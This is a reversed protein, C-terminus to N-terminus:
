SQKVFIEREAHNNMSIQFWRVNQNSRIIQKEGKGKEENNKSLAEVKKMEEIQLTFIASRPSEWGSGRVVNTGQPGPPVGAYMAGSIIADFYAVSLASTQANPIIPYSSQM